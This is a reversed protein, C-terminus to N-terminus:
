ELRLLARELLPLLPVTTSQLDFGLTLPERQPTFVLHFVIEILLLLFLM